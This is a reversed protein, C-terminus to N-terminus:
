GYSQEGDGLTMAGIPGDPGLLPVCIQAGTELVEAQGTRVVRAPARSDLPAEGGPAVALRRLAGDETLVDIACWAALDPLTLRALRAVTEEGGLSSALVDDARALL